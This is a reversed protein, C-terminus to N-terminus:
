VCIGTSQVRWKKLLVTWLLFENPFRFERLVRVTGQALRPVAGMLFFDLVKGTGVSSHHAIIQLPAASFYDPTGQEAAGREFPAGDAKPRTKTDSHPEPASQLHPMWCTCPCSGSNWIKMGFPRLWEGFAAGGGWVSKCAGLVQRSWTAVAFSFRSESKWPLGLTFDTFLVFRIVWGVSALTPM